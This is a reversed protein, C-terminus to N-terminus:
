KKSVANNGRAQIQRAEKIKRMSEDSHKKGWMPNNKGSFRLDKKHSKLAHCNCCLTKLNSKDNNKNNGDIHDIELQSSVIPVFSCEECEKAKLIGYRYRGRCVKIDGKRMHSYEGLNGCNNICMDQNLSVM